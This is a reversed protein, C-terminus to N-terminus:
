KNTKAYQHVAKKILSFDDVRWKPLKELAPFEYIDHKSKGTLQCMFGYMENTLPIGSLGIKYGDSTPNICLRGNGGTVSMNIKRIKQQHFTLKSHGLSSNVEDVLVKLQSKLTEINRM